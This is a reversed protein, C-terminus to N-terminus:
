AGITGDGMGGVKCGGEWVRWTSRILSERRALMLDSQWVAGQSVCVVRSSWARERRREM